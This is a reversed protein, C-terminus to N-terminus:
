QSNARCRVVSSMLYIDTISLKSQMQCCEVYILPRNNLTQEGGLLVRYLISAQQQSNARCRVVSSMLYNYTTSLKGQMQCFEVFYLLRNDVTQGVDTVMRCIINNQQQSNASCRVVSAMLFHDTISLKSQMQWCEVYFVPRNNVTQEVDLLVRCVATTQQQSNARCRAVNSM